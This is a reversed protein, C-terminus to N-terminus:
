FECIEGESATLEDNVRRMLLSSNMIQNQDAVDVFIKLERGDHLEFCKDKYAECCLNCCLAGAGAPYTIAM